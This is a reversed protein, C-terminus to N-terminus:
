EILGEKDLEDILFNKIKADKVVPVWLLSIWVEKIKDEDVPYFTVTLKDFQKVKINSEFVLSKKDVTYSRSNGGSDNKITLVVMANHKPKVDLAIGGKSIEGGCAFMYRLVEGKVEEGIVCNSIPYPSIIASAVKQQRRILRSVIKELFSIRKEDIPIDKVFLPQKMDDKWKM